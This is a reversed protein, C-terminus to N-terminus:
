ADIVEGVNNPLCYGECGQMWNWERVVEIPPRFSTRTDDEEREMSSDCICGIRWVEGRGFWDGDDPIEVYMERKSKCLRCPLCDEPVVGEHCEGTAM